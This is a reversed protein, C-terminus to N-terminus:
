EGRRAGARGPPEEGPTALEALAALYQPESLPLYHWEMRHEMFSVGKGKV